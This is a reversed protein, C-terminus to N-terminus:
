AQVNNGDETEEKKYEEDFCEKWFTKRNWKNKTPDIFEKPLEVIVLRILICVYIKKDDKWTITNIIINCVDSKDSIFNWEGDGTTNEPERERMEEYLAKADEYAGKIYEAADEKSEFRMACHDPKHVFNEPNAVTSGDDLFIDIDQLVLCGLTTRRVFENKFNTLNDYVRRRNSESIDAYDDKRLIGDYEENTMCYEELLDEISVEKLRDQETTQDTTM